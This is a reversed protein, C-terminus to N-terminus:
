ELEPDPSSFVSEYYLYWEDDSIDSAYASSVDVRTQSVMRLLYNRDLRVKASIINILNTRHIGLTKFVNKKYLCM